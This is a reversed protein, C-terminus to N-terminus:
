ADLASSLEALVTADAEVSRRCSLASRPIPLDSEASRGPPTHAFVLTLTLITRSPM